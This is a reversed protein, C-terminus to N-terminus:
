TVRSRAAAHADEIWRRARPTNMSPIHKLASMISQTDFSVIQARATAPLHSAFEQPSMGAQISQAASLLLDQPSQVASPHISEPAGQNAPESSADAPPAADAPPLTKAETRTTSGTPQTTLRRAVSKGIEEAGIRDMFDLARDLMDKNGSETEEGGFISKIKQLKEAQSVIADFPDVDAGAALSNTNRRELMDLYRENLKDYREELRCLEEKTGKNPEKGQVLSLMLETHKMSQEREIRAREINMERDIRQQEMQAQFMLGFMTMMNQQGGLMGGEGSMMRQLTSSLQGLGNQQASQQAELRRTEQEAMFQREQLKREEERDRMRAAEARAEATERRSAEVSQQMQAFLRSTHSEEKAKARNIEEQLRDRERAAEAQSGTLLPIMEKMAALEKPLMPSFHFFFPGGKLSPKRAGMEFLRVQFHGGAPSHRLIAHQLASSDMPTFARTPPVVVWHVADPDGDWDSLDGRDWKRVELFSQGNIWKQEICRDYDMNPSAAAM